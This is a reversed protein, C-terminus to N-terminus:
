EPDAGNDAPTALVAGNPARRGLTAGEIHEVDFRGHVDAYFEAKVLVRHVPGVELSLSKLGHWRKGDLLVETQALSPGVTIDLRHRPATPMPDQTADQTADQSM